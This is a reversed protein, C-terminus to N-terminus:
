QIFNNYRNHCTKDPTPAVLKFEWSKLIDSLQKSRFNVCCSKDKFKIFVLEDLHKFISEYEKRIDAHEYIERLTSKLLKKVKEYDDHLLKDEDRKTATVDVPFGDFTTNKWHGNEMSLM